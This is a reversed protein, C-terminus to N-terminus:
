RSHVDIVVYPAGSEWSPWLQGGGDVLAEIYYQMDWRPSMQAGPITAEFTGVATPQMPIETWDLTQNVPRYHLVVQRLPPVSKVRAALHLDTGAPATLVPAHEIAPPDALPQEGPFAHPPNQVAPHEKVLKELMAVDDLVEPLRDKWHGSHHHGMRRGDEPRYGFVMHANYVGDTFHVIRAGLRRAPQKSEDWCARPLRGADEIM